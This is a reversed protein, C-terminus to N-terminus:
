EVVCGLDSAMLAGTTAHIYFPGFDCSATLSRFIIRAVPERALFRYEIWAQTDPYTSLYREAGYSRALHILEPSDILVRPGIETADLSPRHTNPLLGRYEVRGDPRIIWGFASMVNAELQAFVYTWSGGPSVLGTPSAIGGLSALVTSRGSARELSRVLAVNESITSNPTASYSPSPAPSSGGTPLSSEGASRCSSVGIVVFTSLALWGIHPRRRPWNHRKEHM